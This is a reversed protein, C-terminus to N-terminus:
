FIIFQKLYNDKKLTEIFYFLKKRKKVIEKNKTEREFCIIDMIMEKKNSKSKLKYYSAIHKLQKINYNLEYDLELATMDDIDYYDIEEDICYDYIDTSLTSFSIESSSLENLMEDYNTNESITKIPEIINYAINEMYYYM